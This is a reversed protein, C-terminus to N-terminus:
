PMPVPNLAQWLAQAFWGRSAPQDWDAWAQGVPRDPVAGAYHVYTAIDRRDARERETASPLNPYPNTDPQPQWYGKQVMARAIFLLVQQHLVEGTPNYTGDDYGLAVRYHALTRVNRWLDADVSGQDPFDMESWDEAEWGVSRAILAASQARLVPDAPGFRGDEYGRIIGRLALDEIATRYPTGPTLDRFGPTLLFAHRKGDHEGVGVIQGLNNIDNAEQLVWGSGAPLLENLDRMAGNSFLFARPNEYSTFAIGVVQGADNLGHANSSAFGPLTGLDHMGSTDYLFARSQVSNWAHGVVMGADGIARAMSSDYGPMPPLERASGAEWLIARGGFEGPAGAWGVVQGANNIDHAVSEGGAPSGLTRLSGREYDYVFATTCVIGCNPPGYASGVIQRLNNVGFLRESLGPNFSFYTRRGEHDFFHNGESCGPSVTVVDGRENVAVGFPREIESENSCRPNDTDRLGDAARSDWAFTHRIHHTLSRRPTLYQEWTEPTDAIGVVLGADNIALGASEPGGFTGLDTITYFATHNAAAPRAVPAALALLLAVLALRAVRIM